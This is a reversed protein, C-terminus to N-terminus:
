GYWMTRLGPIPCIRGIISGSYVQRVLKLRPSFKGLNIALLLLLFAMPSASNNSGKYHNTSVGSLPLILCVECDSCVLSNAWLNPALGLLTRQRGYGDNKKMYRNIPFIRLLEAPLQYGGCSSNGYQPSPARTLNNWVTYWYHMNCILGFKDWSWDPTWCRDGNPIELRARNHLLIVISVSYSRVSDSWIKPICTFLKAIYSM